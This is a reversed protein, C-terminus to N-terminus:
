HAHLRTRRCIVKPGTPRALQQLPLNVFHHLANRLHGLEESGGRNLFDSSTLCIKSRLVSINEIIGALLTASQPTKTLHLNSFHQCLLWCSSNCSSCDIIVASSSQAWFSGFLFSYEISTLLQTFNTVPWFFLFVNSRYSYKFFTSWFPISFKQSFLIFTEYESSIAIDKDM